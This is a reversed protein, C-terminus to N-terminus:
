KSVKWTHDLDCWNTQVPWLCTSMGHWSVDTIDSKWCLVSFCGTLLSLMFLFNYCQKAVWSQWILAATLTLDTEIEVTIETLSHKVLLMCYTEGGVAWAAFSFLSTDRDVKDLWSLSSWSSATRDAQPVHLSCSGGPILVLYPPIPLAALEQAGVGM